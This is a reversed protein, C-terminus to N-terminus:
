KRCIMRFFNILYAYIVPLVEELVPVTLYSIEQGIHCGEQAGM